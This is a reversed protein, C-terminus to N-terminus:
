VGCNGVLELWKSGAVIGGNLPQSVTICLLVRVNVKLPPIPNFMKLSKQLLQPIVWPRLFRLLLFKDTFLLFLNLMSSFDGVM